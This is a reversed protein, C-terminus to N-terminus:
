SPGTQLSQLSQQRSYSVSVRCDPSEATTSLLLVRPPFLGGKMWIDVMYFPSTRARMAEKKETPIAEYM